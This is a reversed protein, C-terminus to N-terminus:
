KFLTPAIRFFMILWCALTLWILADFLHALPTQGRHWTELSLGHLPHGKPMLHNMLWTPLSTYKM